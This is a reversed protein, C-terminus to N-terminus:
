LGGVVKEAFKVDIKHAIEHHASCLPAIFRPDHVRTLAFRQTHHLIKAPKNCRPYSCKKGYEERVVKRIKAPIYRSIEHRDMEQGMAIKKKKFTSEVEKRSRELRQEMVIEEKKEEIEEKRKKLANRLFENIDIGKEQMEFLEKEVDEALKLVLNLGSGFTQVHLSEADFIPRQFGNSVESAEAENRENKADRVLVELARNSLVKMTEFLEEQNEATAISVVRALKNASIEGSVLAKRLVPKDEFKRELNLVLSVQDRSMGSLKGAFEFISSFGKKEYLKRRVVEPLLGAFKRRAELAETGFKKCLEYLEKDTLNQNLNIM